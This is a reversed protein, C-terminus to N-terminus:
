GAAAAPIPWPAIGTIKGLLNWTDERFVNYQTIWLVKCPECIGNLVEGIRYDWPALLGHLSFHSKSNIASFAFTLQEHCHEDSEYYCDNSPKFKTLLNIKKPIMDTVMKLGHLCRRLDQPSLEEFEGSGYDVRDVLDAPDSLLLRFYAFPLLEVLDFSRALNVLGITDLAHFTVHRTPQKSRYFSMAADYEALTTYCRLRLRRLAEARVHEVDYKTALILMARVVRFSPTTDPNFFPSPPAANMHSPYSLVHLIVVCEKGGDYLLTFFGALNEGSDSVRVVPCDEVVDTSEGTHPASFMDRFVQSHHCVIGRHLRFLMDESAIVVNGDDFWLTEHKKVESLSPLEDETRQRKAPPAVQTTM